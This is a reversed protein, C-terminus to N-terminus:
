AHTIQLSAYLDIMKQVCNKWDYNQLVNERGARGMSERLSRDAILKELALSAAEVDRPAVIIGTKGDVVVEPLGGVNTAVVPLGCAGAEVSAVGFSESDLISLIAFIDLQSLISYYKDFDNQQSIFGHFTVRDSVGLTQALATLSGRLEGDGVIELHVHPYLPYLRAFARILYEVGYKSSLTRITGITIKDPNTKVAPTFKGTDVGFPILEVEKDTLKSIERRTIGSLVTIADAKGFSYQLLRKMLPNKATDFIDAGWGTIVYPHFQSCAGMFGYSTAYHAHLVDPGIQRVLSRVRPLNLLYDARGGTYSKLFHYEADEFLVGRSFTLVHLEIDKRASLAQIWKQNHVSGNEGLYCVKM